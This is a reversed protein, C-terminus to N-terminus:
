IKVCGNSSPMPIKVDKKVHSMSINVRGSLLLERCKETDEPRGKLITPHLEQQVQNAAAFIHPLSITWGTLKDRSINGLKFCCDRWCLYLRLFLCSYLHWPGRSYRHCPCLCLWTNWIAWFSGYCLMPM